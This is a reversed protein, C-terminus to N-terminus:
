RQGCDRYGARIWPLPKIVNLLHADDFLVEFHQSLRTRDLTPPELCPNPRFHAIRRRHPHRRQAHSLVWIWAVMSANAVRCAKMEGFAVGAVSVSCVRM